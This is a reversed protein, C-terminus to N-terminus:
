LGSDELVFRRAWVGPESQLAAAVVALRSVGLAPTPIRFASGGLGRSASGPRPVLALRGGPGNSAAVALRALERELHILRLRSAVVLLSEQGGTSTVVWNHAVGDRDGPLVARQRAALPNALDLRPVPFLVFLNGIQDENLVYLHFPEPCEVELSLFDGPRVSGGTDLPEPRGARTRYLAVEM